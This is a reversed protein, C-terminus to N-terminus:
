SIEKQARQTLEQYLFKEIKNKGNDKARLIANELKHIIKEVSDMNEYKTIGVSITLPYKHNGEFFDKVKWQLKEAVKQAGELSTKPLIVVFQDESWRGVIDSKRINKRILFGLDKLIKENFRFDFAKNVERFDDVDILLVSLEQKTRKALEMHKLLMEEIVERKYTGTIEDYPKGKNTSLKTLQKQTYVATAILTLSFIGLFVPFIKDINREILYISGFTGLIALFSMNILLIKRKLDKLTEEM